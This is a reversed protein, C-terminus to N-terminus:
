VLRGKENTKPYTTRVSAISGGAELYGQIYDCRDKLSVRACEFGKKADLKGLERMSFSSDVCYVKIQEKAYNDVFMEKFM